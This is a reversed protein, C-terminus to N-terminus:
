APFPSAAGLTPSQVWLKAAGLGLESYGCASGNGAEGSPIGFSGPHYHGGKWPAAKTPFLPAGM